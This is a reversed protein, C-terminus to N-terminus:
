PLLDSFDELSFGLSLLVGLTLTLQGKLTEISSYLGHLHEETVHMWHDRDSGARTLM